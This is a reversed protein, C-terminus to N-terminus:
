FEKAAWRSLRSKRTQQIHNRQQPLCTSTMGHYTSRRVATSTPPHLDVTRLTTRHDHNVSSSYGSPQDKYQSTKRANGSFCRARVRDRPSAVEVYARLLVRRNKSCNGRIMGPNFTTPSRTRVTLTITNPRPAHWRRKGIANGTCVERKWVAVPVFTKLRPAQPGVSKIEM